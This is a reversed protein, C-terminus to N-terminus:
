LFNKFFGFLGIGAWIFYFSTLSLSKKKLSIIGLGASGSINLLLYFLNSYEVFKLSVLFYGGLVAVFGYWGIISYTKERM